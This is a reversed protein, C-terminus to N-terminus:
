ALVRLLPQDQPQEPLFPHELVILRRAAQLLNEFPSNKGAFAALMKDLVPVVCAVAFDAAKETQMRGMLRLVHTLHDPLETSEELGQRRLEQRMRVLLLGREYNEGFLHWGLELSCLPNLDFTQTFLEQLEEESLGRMRQVFDELLPALERPVARRCEEARQLYDQGPYTLLEALADYIIRRESM